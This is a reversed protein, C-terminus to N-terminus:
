EGKRLTLIIVDYKGFLERSKEASQEPAAALVSAAKVINSVPLKHDSVIFFFREFAPADDLVYSESLLNRKGPKLATDEQLSSPYHWTLNGKGDISFIVGFKKMGATYALQLVDGKRALDGDRLPEEGAATNRYILLSTNGKIRDGPDGFYFSVLLVPVMAAVLAAGSLVPIWAAFRRRRPPTQVAEVAEERALRKKIKESMEAPSYKELIERDSKELDELRKKLPGGDRLLADMEKTEKASLEGLRYRELKLDSIENQKM